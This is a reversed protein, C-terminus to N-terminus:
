FLDGFLLTFIWLEIGTTYPPQSICVIDFTGLTPLENGLDYSGLFSLQLWIRLESVQM